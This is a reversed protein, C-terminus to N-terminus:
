VLVNRAIRKRMNSTNIGMAERYKAVTRRAINVNFKALEKVLDDDSYIQGADESDIISKIIEKVKTSSVESTSNKSQIKSSFFFRMDYIGTPTQIYKNSTARSITSENMGCIYAIEALTMPKLYMVGKLFFDKQKDAIVNAVERITKLRQTIARMVNNAGHYYNSAFDKDQSEKLKGKIESYYDKKVNLDPVIQENIRVKIEGDDITLIVDAVRSIARETGFSACPKPNLLKIENIYEALEDREINCLTALKATDHTALCNLNDLIIQFIENYEGNEKLQLALCEQLNRAFIGTPEISQLRYLVSLIDSEPIQLDKVAKAMDLEVYGSEQLLNVLYLAIMREIPDSIVHGVQEMVYVTLSQEDSIQSIPDFNEDFGSTVRINDFREEEKNDESESESSSELFPNNAIEMNIMESLEISSMQLINISQRLSLTLNM